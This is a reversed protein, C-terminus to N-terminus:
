KTSWSEEWAMWTNGARIDYGENERRTLLATRGNPQQAIGLVPYTRTIDTSETVFIHKGILSALETPTGKTLLGSEHQTLFTGLIPGSLTAHKTNIRTNGLHLRTGGILLTRDSGMFGFRGDFTLKRRGLRITRPPKGPGASVFLDKGRPTTVEIVCTLSRPDEYLIRASSVANSEAYLTVFISPGRTRRRIIYPVTSGHDHAKRQGFGQGIFVTENKTAPIHVRFPKGGDPKWTASWPKDSTGTRVQTLDYIPENTRTPTIGSLRLSRGPGHLTWDHTRGGKVRFIDLVYETPGSNVIAITRRYTSADDYANSSAEMVKLDPGTSFLHFTARRGRDKQEKGNILVLNHALTRRTMKGLQDMDWLYGLDTLLERGDKWYYFNLHDYHHHGKWDAGYLIASSGSGRSGTRLTGINLHPGLDDTFRPSEQPLASAERYFAGSTDLNGGYWFQAIRGVYCRPIKAIDRQLLRHTETPYNRALIDSFMASLHCPLRNDTLLPYDLNQLLPRAMGNWVARYRPWQYLDLHDLHTPALDIGEPDRYHKLAETVRWIGHLMMGAYGISESTGGDPLWWDRVARVFGDLGFRVLLPDGCTLGILAVACRNMGTKNNTAHDSFLMVAADMLLNKEIHYRDEDSLTPAVLDYALILKQLSAGEFGASSGWRLTAWYGAHLKRDRPNGPPAWDDEPLNNVCSSAIRPDMDAIDGYASHVLYRPHVDAFRCLILAASRAYTKKGTLAYALALDEALNAAHRCQHIRAHGSFSSHIAPYGYAPWSKKSYLTIKQSPDFKSHFVLDEPYEENPYVTGCGKCRVHEPDDPSWDYAGHKPAFECKPCMTFHPSYPTTSPIYTTTWKKTISGATEVRQLLTQLAQKAWTHHAVNERARSIDENSFITVPHRVSTRHKEWRSLDMMEPISFEGQWTELWSLNASM